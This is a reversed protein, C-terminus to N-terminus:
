NRRISYVCGCYDQRYLDFERSIETTRKFGDDKKFDSKLYKVNYKEELEIGIENIKDSNKHPSVSLATTFYKFGNKEAYEATREMRLKYCKFCRSGGERENELGNVADFFEKENYPFEIIKIEQNIFKPVFDKLENARKTYEEVPYINPNYFLITIDFHKKLRELVSSSCPACCVQLLLSERNQLNELENKMLQNYNIKKM